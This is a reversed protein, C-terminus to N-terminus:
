SQSGSVEAVQSVRGLDQHAKALHHAALASMGSIEAALAAVGIASALYYTDIEQGGGILQRAQTQAPLWTGGGVVGINLNPLNVAAYVGDGDIELTTSAQAAEVVHAIDQGTALLMAAAVNAVQMNQSLSGAVNSGVLNKAVQVAVLSSADTKLVNSIVQGPIKVEAQVQYGRGLVRNIVSDKKDACANSSVAVLKVEPLAQTIAEAMRQVAITVMNMGMAQDPDCVFRVFVQRGRQWAQFEIVRLHSSTAEAVTKLDMFHQDIWKILNQATEGDPCSFVPARTMGIKRVFVQAGGSLNIAKCGRNVSAVLAGETTALPLRVEDSTSKNDEHQWSMKVPGAMGVPMAVSGILNECNKRGVLEVDFPTTFLSSFDAATAQQIAQQRDQVASSVNLVTSM